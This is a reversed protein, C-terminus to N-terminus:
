KLLYDYRGLQFNWITKLREVSWLPGSIVLRLHAYYEALKPEMQSLDGTKRANMYGQPVARPFHGIRWEHIDITPLRSLLPDALGYLDIIKLSPGAYFGYMGTNGIITIDTKAAASRGQEVWAFTPAKRYPENQASFIGTDLAYFSRENIIGKNPSQPNLSQPNAPISAHPSYPPSFIGTVTTLASLSAIAIYRWARYPSVGLMFTHIMCIAAFLPLIFFRGSMFDGGVSVVYVCQLFIGLCLLIQLVATRHHKHMRYLWYFPLFIVAISMSLAGIIDNWYLDRAYYLGQIWIDHTSIGTNLKAYKTNPFIFGYYLLAFLVWGWAPITVALLKVPQILHRKEWLLYLLVPLLIVISDMRNMFCLAAIAFFIYITSSSSSDRMLLRYFIAFLLISLPSELGSTTFMILSPSYLTLIIFLVAAGRPNRGRALLIILWAALSCILSLAITSLYMNGSLAYIPVHLLMWLPHTYVQVREDFNWVAGYGHVINDVVRFTIYPDDGVWAVPIVFICFVAIPLVTLLFQTTLSSIRKPLM